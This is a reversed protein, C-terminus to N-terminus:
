DRRDERANVGHRRVDPKLPTRHKGVGGRLDGVALDVECQHEGCARKGVAQGLM